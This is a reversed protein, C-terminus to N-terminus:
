ASRCLSGCIVKRRIPERRNQRWGRERAVEQEFERLYHEAYSILQRKDAAPAAAALAAGLFIAALAATRKKKM